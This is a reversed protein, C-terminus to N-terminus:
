NSRSRCRCTYRSFLTRNGAARRISCRRHPDNSASPHQRRGCPLGLLGVVDDPDRLFRTRKRCRDRGGRFGALEILRGFCGPLQAPSAICAVIQMRFFPSAVSQSTVVLATVHRGAAGRGTTGGRAGRAPCCDRVRLRPGASKPCPHRRRARSCSEPRDLTGIGSRLSRNGQSRRVASLSRGRRESHRRM